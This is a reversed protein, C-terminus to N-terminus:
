FSFGGVKRQRQARVGFTDFEKKRLSVGPTKSFRQPVLVFDL